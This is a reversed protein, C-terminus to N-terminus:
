GFVRFLVKGTYSRSANTYFAHRKRIKPQKLPVSFPVLMQEPKQRYNSYQPKTALRKLRPSMKLGESPKEIENVRIRESFDFKKSKFDKISKLYRVIEKRLKKKMNTEMEETKEIIHLARSYSVIAGDYLYLKSM